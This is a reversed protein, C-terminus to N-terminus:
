ALRRWGAGMRDLRIQSDTLKGKPPMRLEGQYNVTQILLSKEPKGPEVASGSDGGRLLEARATLRLGGKIKDKGGHCSLCHEVLVPRVSKEFFEAPDDARAPSALTCAALLLLLKRM